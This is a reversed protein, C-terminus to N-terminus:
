AGAERRGERGSDGAQLERIEAEHKELVAKIMGIEVWVKIYPKKEAEPETAMEEEVQHATAGQKIRAIVPELKGYFDRLFRPTVAEQGNIKRSFNGKDKEMWKALTQATFVTLLLELDAKWQEFDAQRLRGGAFAKLESM